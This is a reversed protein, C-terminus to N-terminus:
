NKTQGAPPAPAPPLSALVAMAHRAIGSRPEKSLPEVLKRAEDPQTKALMKALEISAQEKTVTNAPKAIFGRLIEEAQKGRGSSRYIEHLAWNAIAAFDKSGSKAAEQFFREADQMKGEDSAVVGLQIQAIAAEDSGGHRTIVDLLAKKLAATKEEMTRYYPRPDGPNAMVGIKGERIRFAEALDAQRSRAQQGRYYWFGAALAIVALATGGYRIAKDRNAQLYSLTHGVEEVFHDTKLDQRTARDM